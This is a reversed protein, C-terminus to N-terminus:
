GASRGGGRRSARGIQYYGRFPRNLTEIRRLWKVSAVGYWGPVFLRVPQGHSPSLLEGNMRTVLLTDRDLAKELPLSRAFPMPELDSACGDSGGDGAGM